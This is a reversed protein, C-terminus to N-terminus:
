LDVVAMHTARDLRLPNTSLIFATQKHSNLGPILSQEAGADQVKLGPFTAAGAM